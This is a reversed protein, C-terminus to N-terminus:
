LFSQILADIKAPPVGLRRSMRTLDTAPLHGGNVQAHQLGEATLGLVRLGGFDRLAARHLAEMVATAAQTSIGFHRGVLSYYYIDANRLPPGHSANKMPRFSDDPYTPLGGLGTPPRHDRMYRDWEERRSRELVESPTPCTDCRTESTVANVARDAGSSIQDDQCGIVVFGTFVAVM